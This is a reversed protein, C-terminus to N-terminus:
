EQGRNLATFDVDHSNLKRGCWPCYDISMKNQINYKINEKPRFIISNQLHYKEECIDYEIEWNSIVASDRSERVLHSTPLLPDCYECCKDMIM